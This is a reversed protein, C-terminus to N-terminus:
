PQQLQQLANDLSHADEFYRAVLRQTRAPDGLTAQLTRVLFAYDTRETPTTLITRLWAWMLEDGLERQLATLLVPTYYYVYLERNGYAKESQVQAFPVAQFGQLRQRKSALKQRYLSDSLVDQTLRLSLYETFGESLADGLVSNFTKYTGFYYHGLEHAIFPKFWEGTKKAFLAQLGNQGRGITFITPYDVFLWANQKSTPTTQVYTIATQYPLRLQRQYYRKYTSTMRGFAQLQAATIDPNLFYTSDQKVVKYNGLYLSLQVPVDSKVRARPGKVPLSGNVYLQQCDTCTIQLDYRVKSLAVDRRIDYLIPYWCSQSGDTRLSYGNFAINGKWDEASYNALTDTAVPFMGTYRLALKRPLFKGKGTQDPFYYALSEGSAMTDTLAKDYRILFNADLSKFYLPNLGANLRLYYDPLRPIDALVLDCTFTGKKVSVEVTGTLLPAPDQARSPHFSALLVALLLLLQRMLLTSYCIRTFSPLILAREVGVWVSEGM